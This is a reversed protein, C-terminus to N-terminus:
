SCRGCYGCRVTCRSGEDAERSEDERAALIAADALAADLAAHDALMTDLLPGTRPDALFAHWAAESTDPVAVPAPVRIIEVSAYPWSEAPFLARAPLSSRRAM